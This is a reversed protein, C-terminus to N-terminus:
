SLLTRSFFDFVVPFFCVPESLFESSLFLLALFSM